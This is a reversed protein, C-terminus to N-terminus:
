LSRFSTELQKSIAKIDYHRNVIEYATKSCEQYLTKNTILQDLADVWEDISTASYGINGLDIVEKNMGVPSIVVPLKAAMYCLMKYSCKGRSRDTAELPMIGIDANVISSFEIERSWYNFVYDIPKLFIFNPPQDSVIKIKVFNYKDVIIKLAREIEYVFPFGSSTGTWLIYFNDPSKDPIIEDYKSVDVATPIIDINSNWKSFNEALFSNGCIIKQSQLAIKKVFNDNPIFIADDVDFVLPKKLFKEFTYHKSMLVKQLWTIDSAPQQLMKISHETLNKFAWPIQKILGPPPFSGARSYIENVDIGLENLFPINQRVRYRASPANYGTTYANIKIHM